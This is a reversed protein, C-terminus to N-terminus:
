RGSLRCGNQIGDRPLGATAATATEKEAAAVTATRISNKEGSSIYTARAVIEGIAGERVTRSLTMIMQRIVAGESKATDRTADTATMGIDGIADMATSTRRGTAVDQTKRRPTNQARRTSKKLGSHAEEARGIRSERKQRPTGRASRQGAPALRIQSHPLAM